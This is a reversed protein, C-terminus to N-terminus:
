KESKEKPLPQMFESKNRFIAALLFGLICYKLISGAWAFIQAKFTFPNSEKAQELKAIRDDDVLGIADIREVAMQYLTERLSDQATPDAVTFLLYYIAMNATVGIAIYILYPTFIDKFTIYGGAAKKSILMCAVALVITVGINLFGLPLSTFLSQDTYFVICDFLLYYLALILGFRIGIKNISNKM